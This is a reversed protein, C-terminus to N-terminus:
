LRSCSAKGGKIIFENSISATQHSHRQLTNNIGRLQAILIDDHASQLDRYLERLAEAIVFTLTDYEQDTIPEFKLPLRVKWDDEHLALRQDVNRVYPELAKQSRASLLHSDCLLEFLGYGAIPDDHFAAVVEHYAVRQRIERDRLTRIRHIWSM